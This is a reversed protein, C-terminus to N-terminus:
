FAALASSVGCGCVVWVGWGGGEPAGRVQAEAKLDALVEWPQICRLALDAGGRQCVLAGAPTDLAEAGVAPQRLASCLPNPCTIRGDWGTTAGLASLTGTVAAGSSGAVEGAAAAPGQGAGADGGAAAGAGAGAAAAATNTRMQKSCDACLEWECVPCAAVLNAITAQCLDCSTKELAPLPLHPVSALTTGYAAAQLPPSLAPLRRNSPDSFGVLRLHCHQHQWPV